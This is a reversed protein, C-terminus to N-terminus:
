VGGTKAALPRLCVPRSNAELRRCFLFERHLQKQWLRPNWNPLSGGAFVPTFMESEAAVFVPEAERRAPGHAFLESELRFDCILKDDSNRDPWRKLQGVDFRISTVEQMVEGFSMASEESDEGIKWSISDSTSGTAEAIEPLVETITESPTNGVGISKAEEALRLFGQPIYAQPIDLLETSVEWKMTENRCLIDFACVKTTDENTGTEESM